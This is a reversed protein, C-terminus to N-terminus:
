VRCNVDLLLMSPRVLWFGVPAGSPVSIKMVLSNFSIKTKSCDWVVESLRKHTDHCWCCMDKVKWYGLCGLRDNRNQTLPIILIEGNIKIRNVNYLQCHVSLRRYAQTLNTFCNPHRIDWYYYRLLQVLFIYDADCSEKLHNGVIM